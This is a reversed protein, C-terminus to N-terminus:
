GPIRFQHCFEHVRIQVPRLTDTPNSASLASVNCDVNAIQLNQRELRAEIADFPLTTSVGIVMRSDDDFQSSSECDEEQLAGALYTRVIVEINGERQPASFVVGANGGAPYVVGPPATARFTVASSQLGDALNLTAYTADTGDVAKEPTDASCEPCTQAASFATTTGSGTIEDCLSDVYASFGPDTTDGKLLVAGPAGPVSSDSDCGMLTFAIIAALLLRGDKLPTDM